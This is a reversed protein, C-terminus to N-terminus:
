LTTQTSTIPIAQTKAGSQNLSHYQRVALPSGPPKGSSTITYWEDGFELAGRIVEEKEGGSLTQNLILIVDKWTLEFTM